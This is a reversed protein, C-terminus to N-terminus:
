IDSVFILGAVQTEDYNKHTINKMMNNSSKGHFENVLIWPINDYKEKCEKEYQEMDKAFCVRGPQSSM